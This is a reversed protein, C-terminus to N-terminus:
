KLARVYKVLSSIEDESVKGKYAPMKNKGNTTINALEADSMKVVDPDSFPRAGMSKGSSFTTRKRWSVDPVEIQLYGTRQGCRLRQEGTRRGIHRDNDFGKHELADYEGQTTAWRGSPTEGRL